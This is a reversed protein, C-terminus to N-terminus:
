LGGFYIQKQSNVIVEVDHYPCTGCTGFVPIDYSNPDHEMQQILEYNETLKGDIREKLTNWPQLGRKNLSGDKNRDGQEFVERFDGQGLKLTILRYTKMKEPNLLHEILVLEYADDKRFRQTMNVKFLADKGKFTGIGDCYLRIPKDTLPYDVKKNIETFTINHESILSDINSILESIEEENFKGQFIEDVRELDTTGSANPFKSLLHDFLKGREFILKNYYYQPTGEIELIYWAMRRPCAKEFDIVRFFQYFDPSKSESTKSV